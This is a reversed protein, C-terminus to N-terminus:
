DRDELRLCRSNQRRSRDHQIHLIRSALLNESPRDIGYVISRVSLKLDVRGGNSAKGWRYIM